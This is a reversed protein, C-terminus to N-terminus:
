YSGDKSDKFFSENKIEHEIEAIEGLLSDFEESEAYHLINELRIELENIFHQRQEKERMKM